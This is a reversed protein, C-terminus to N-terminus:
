YLIQSERDLTTAILELGKKQAYRVTNYTGGSQRKLYHICVCSRDVMYRNRLAMCFKTYHECVYVVEAADSMIRNLLDIDRKRWKAYHNHCPLALILELSPIENRMNLVAVAATLDFGVAGGCYYRYIKRKSLERITEKLIEYTELAEEDSLDRHGTFCASSMITESSLPKDFSDKM